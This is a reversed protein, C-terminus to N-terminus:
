FTFTVIWIIILSEYQSIANEISGRLIGHSAENPRPPGEHSGQTGWQLFVTNASKNNLFVSCVVLVLRAFGKSSHFIPEKGTIM